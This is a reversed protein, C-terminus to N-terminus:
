ISGLEKVKEKYEHYEIYLMLYADVYKPYISWGYVTSRPINMNDALQAKSLGSRQRLSM